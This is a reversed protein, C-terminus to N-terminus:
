SAPLSGPRRRKRPPATSDRIVLEPAIRAVRPAGRDDEDEEILKLLREVGRRSMDDAPYNVTSLPPVAHAALEINDFGIISLDRPVHIGHAVCWHIAGFALTDNVALVATPPNPASMLPTMANFAQSSEFGKPNVMLAEDVALGAATLAQMYGERKEPNGLSASNDIFGIRRHGLGILYETAVRAGGRDDFSVTEIDGQGLGALMVVPTGHAVIEAIHAHERANAPYILIGDVQRSFFVELANKEEEVSHNSTAFLTAYGHGSLAEHIAQAARTLIPNQINTLILGITKSRRSVLSRALQNPRYKLQRAAAWIAKSTEEAVLPSHHLALSVTNTSFGTQDAIDKLRARRKM